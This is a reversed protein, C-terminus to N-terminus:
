KEFPINRLQLLLAEKRYNTDSSQIEQMAEVSSVPHCFAM